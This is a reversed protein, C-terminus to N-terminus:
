DGEFAVFPNSEICIARAWSCILGNNFEWIFLVGELFAVKM